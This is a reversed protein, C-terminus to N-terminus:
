SPCCCDRDHYPLTIVGFCYDRVCHDDVREGNKELDSVIALLQKPFTNDTHLNIVRVLCRLVLM